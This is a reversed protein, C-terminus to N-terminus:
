TVWIPNITQRYPPTYRNKRRHVLCGQCVVPRGIRIQSGIPLSGESPDGRCVLESVVLRSAARVLHSNGMAAPARIGFGAGPTLVCPSCAGYVRSTFLWPFPEPIATDPTGPRGVSTDASFFVINRVNVSASYPCSNVRVIGGDIKIVETPYNTFQYASGRM